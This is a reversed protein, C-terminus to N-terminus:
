YSARQPVVPETREVLEIVRRFEPVGIHWTYTQQGLIRSTVAGPKVQYREEGYPWIHRPDQGNVVVYQHNPTKNKVIFTGVEPITSKIARKLEDRASQSNTDFRLHHGGSESQMTIQALTTGQNQQQEVMAEQASKLTALDKRLEAIEASTNLRMQQISSTLAELNQNLKDFDARTLPQEATETQAWVNVTFLAICVPVLLLRAIMNKETLILTPRSERAYDGPSEDRFNLLYGHTNIDSVDVPALLLRINRSQLLCV